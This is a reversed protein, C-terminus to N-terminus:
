QLKVLKQSSKMFGSHLKCLGMECPDGKIKAVTAANTYTKGFKRLWKPELHNLTPRSHAAKAASCIEEKLWGSVARHRGEYPDGSADHGLVATNPNGPGHGLEALHDMTVLRGVGADWALVEHIDAEGRLVGCITGVFRELVALTEDVAELDANTSCWFGQPTVGLVGDGVALHCCRAVSWHLARTRRTAECTTNAPVWSLM